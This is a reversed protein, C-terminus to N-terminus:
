RDDDAPLNATLGSFYAWKGTTRAALEEEFREATWGQEALAATIKDTVGQYIAPVSWEGADFATDYELAAFGRKQIRHITSAITSLTTTM